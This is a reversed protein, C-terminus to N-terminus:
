DLHDIKFYKCVVYKEFLTFIELQFIELIYSVLKKFQAILSPFHQSKFSKETVEVKRSVKIAKLIGLCQESLVWPLFVVPKVDM